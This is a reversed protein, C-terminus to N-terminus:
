SQAAKAAYLAIAAANSVNLSQIAGETPLRVLQNCQDKIKPRLGNGESGLVLVLKKKQITTSGLEDGREDLGLAHYGNEQLIELARSLNTEYAVPIHDVAGSATKALIGDLQPAHRTQLIVGHAGFAAASRLIAGVNHPDTVQDLMLIVSTDQKYTLSILDQVLIEPLPETQIAIGQHVTNQGLRDLEKKDIIQPKPRTIREREAQTIVDRFQDLSKESIYLAKIEREHNLWAEQVAHMGWIDVQVRPGKKETKPWTKGGKGNKNYPRNPGRSTKKYKEDDKKM